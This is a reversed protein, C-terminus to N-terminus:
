IRDRPEGTEHDLKAAEASDDVEDLIQARALGHKDFLANIQPEFKMFEEHVRQLYAAILKVEHTKFSLGANLQATRYLTFIKHIALQEAERCYAANQDDYSQMTDIFKNMSRADGALAKSALKAIVGERLTIEDDGGPLKGEILTAALNEFVTKNNKSGRPRGKPNGSQGKRFQTAKPPAKYGTPEKNNDQAPDSM